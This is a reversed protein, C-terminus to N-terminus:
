RCIRPPIKGALRAPDDISNTVDASGASNQEAIYPRRVPQYRYAGACKKNESMM